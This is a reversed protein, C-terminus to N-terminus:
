RLESEHLPLAKTMAAYIAQHNERVLEEQADLHEMVQDLLRQQTEAPLATATFPRDQEPNRTHVSSNGESRAIQDIAIRRLEKIDALVADRMSEPSDFLEFFRRRRELMAEPEGDYPLRAEYQLRFGSGDVTFASVSNRTLRIVTPTRTANFSFHSEDENVLGVWAWCDEDASYNVM